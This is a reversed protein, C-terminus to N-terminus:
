DLALILIIVVLLIILLTTTTFTITDSAYAQELARVESAVRAADRDSMDRVGRGIDQLDVNLADAAGGM